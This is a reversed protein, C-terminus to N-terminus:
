RRLRVFEVAHGYLIQAGRAHKDRSHHQRGRRGGDRAQTVQSSRRTQFCAIHRRTLVHPSPPQSPPLPFLCHGCANWPPTSAHSHACQVLPPIAGAEALEMKNTGVASLHWLTCAASTVPEPEESSLMSVLPHMGGAAVIAVKNEGLRALDALLAAAREQPTKTRVRRGDGLLRVLPPIANANTLAKKNEMSRSAIMGLAEASKLQAAANRVDLVAVLCSIVMNRSEEDNAALYLLAGVAHNQSEKSESGLLNVLPPIAGAKALAIQNETHDRALAELAAAAYQQTIESGNQLLNVLPGIGGAKPIATQNDETAGLHWLAKTAPEHSSTSKDRLLELLPPIGGEESIVQRLPQPACACTLLVHTYPDAAALAAKCACTRRTVRLGHTENRSESARVIQNVAHDKALTALCGAAVTALKLAMSSVSVGGAAAAAAASVYAQIMAILCDIAGTDDAGALSHLSQDFPYCCRRELNSDHGLMGEEAIQAQTDPNGLAIASLARGGVEVAGLSPDRLWSVLANVGGAEAIEFAAEARTALQACTVAAHDKADLTGEKLLLVIPEIGGAQWALAVSLRSLPFSTEQLWLQEHDRM